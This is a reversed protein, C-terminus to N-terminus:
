DLAAAIKRIASANRFTGIGAKPSAAARLLPSLSLQHPSALWLARPTVAFAEDPGCRAQLAAIVAPDPAARMVRVAVSSPDLRSQEPFPNAAVLARWDPASRLLVAIAKGWGRAVEAEIREALEAEEGGAEFILNGTSLVTRVSSFGLDAALRTLDASTVRRAQPLVVSYLLAVWVAM